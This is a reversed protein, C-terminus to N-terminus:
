DPNHPNFNVRGRLFARKCYGGPLLVGMERWVRIQAFERLVDDPASGHFMLQAALNLLAQAQNTATMDTFSDDSCGTTAMYDDSWRTRDPWPGVKVRPEDPPLDWAIMYGDDAFNM